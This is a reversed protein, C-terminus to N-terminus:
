PSGPTARSGESGGRRKLLQWVLLLALLAFLGAFGFPFYPETFLPLDMDPVISRMRDGFEKGRIGGGVWLASLLSTWTLRLALGRAPRGRWCVVWVIAYLLSLAEAPLLFARIRPLGEELAKGFGGDDQLATVFPLLDM